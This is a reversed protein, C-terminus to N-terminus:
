NVKEQMAKEYHHYLEIVKGNFQMLALMVEANHRLQASAFLDTIINMTDHYSLPALVRNIKEIMKDLLIMEYTVEEPKMRGSLVCLKCM